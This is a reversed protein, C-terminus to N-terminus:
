PKWYFEQVIYNIWQGFDASSWDSKETVINKIVYTIQLM